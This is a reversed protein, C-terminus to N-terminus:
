LSKAALAPADKALKALEGLVQCRGQFLATNNIAIPLQRLEHMEWDEIWKLLEPHQRVVSALAKVIQPEPRIM